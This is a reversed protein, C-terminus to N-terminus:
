TSKPIVRQPAKNVSESTYYKKGAIKAGELIGKSEWEHITPYSVGFMEKVEKRPIYKRTLLREVLPSMQIILEDAISKVLEEKPIATIISDQTM